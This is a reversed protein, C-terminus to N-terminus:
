RSRPRDSAARSPTTSISTSLTSAREPLAAGHADDDRDEDGNSEDREEEQLPTVLVASL